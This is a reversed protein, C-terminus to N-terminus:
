ANRIMDKFLTEEPKFSFVPSFLVLMEKNFGM